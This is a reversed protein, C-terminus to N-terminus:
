ERKHAPLAVAAAADAALTGPPQGKNLVTSNGIGRKDYRLVVFGNRTLHDAIVLFPKHGFITEDRDHPGSGAILVVAPFRGTSDPITLSGSLEIEDKKNPFKVEEIM